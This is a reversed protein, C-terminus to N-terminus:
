AEKEMLRQVQMLDEPTDVSPSGSDVLLVRIPCGRELLRLQELSERQELAGPTGDVFDFLAERRFGYLGLHRLFPGRHPIPARSFYLADGRADAVVKVTSPGPDADIRTALTCVQVEPSQLAQDLRLLHEPDVLPLDAQLNIVTQVDRDRVAQAVRDSGSPLDPDTLVVDAGFSAAVDAIEPDAAAVLVPLGSRLARQWVHWLM